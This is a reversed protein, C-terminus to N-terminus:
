IRGYRRLVRLAEITTDVSPEQGSEASWGGEPQMRRSLEDLCEGIWREEGSVGAQAFCNLAWAFQGDSWESIPKARLFQLGKKTLDSDPDDMLFVSTALWTTPLVGLLKGTGEQYKALYSVGKRFAPQGEMRLAALRFTAAATLYLITQPRGPKFWPPLAYKQVARDEDWAGDEDQVDLLFGTAKDALPSDTLGLEELWGLVAVTMEVTSLNDVALLHPFGGDINQIEALARIVPEEPAIGQLLSRVRARELDTGQGEVLAISRSIDM